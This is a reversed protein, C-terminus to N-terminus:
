AKCLKARDKQKCSLEAPPNFTYPKDLCLARGEDWGTVKNALDFQVAVNSCNRNDWRLELGLQPDLKWDGKDTHLLAWTPAGLLKLVESKSMGKKVQEAKKSLETQPKGQALAVTATLIIVLVRWLM